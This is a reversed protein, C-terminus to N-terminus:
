IVACFIDIIKIILFLGMNCILNYIRDLITDTHMRHKMEVNKQVVCFKYFIIDDVVYLAAAGVFVIM